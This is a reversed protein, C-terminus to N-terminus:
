KIRCLANKFKRECEQFFDSADDAARAFAFGDPVKERFEEFELKVVVRNIFLEMDIELRGEGQLRTEKLIAEFAPNFAHVRGFVQETENEFPPRAPRNISNRHFLDGALAAVPIFLVM